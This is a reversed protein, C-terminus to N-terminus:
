TESFWWEAFSQKRPAPQTEGNNSAQQQPQQPQQSQQQPQQQAGQIAERLANVVREPMGNVATILDANPDRPPAYQPQQPQPRQNWWSPPNKLWEPPELPQPQPQQQGQGADQSM